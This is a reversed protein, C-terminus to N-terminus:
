ENEADIEEKRAKIMQAMIAMTTSRPQESERPSARLVQAAQEVTLETELALHRALSERGKAEPSQTIAGYRAREETRARKAIAEATDVPDAVSEVSATGEAVLLAGIEPAEDKAAGSM